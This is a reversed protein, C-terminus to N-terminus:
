IISVILKLLSHSITLDQWIMNKEVETVDDWTPLLISVKTRAWVGLYSSFLFRNPGSPRGDKPDVQVAAKSGGVRTAILKRLRTSETSRRSSNDM